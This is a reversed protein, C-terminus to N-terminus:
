RDVFFLTPVVTALAACLKAPTSHEFLMGGQPLTVAVWPCGAHLHGAM